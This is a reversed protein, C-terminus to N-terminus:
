LKFLMGLCCRKRSNPGTVTGLELTELNSKILLFQYFQTGSSLGVVM